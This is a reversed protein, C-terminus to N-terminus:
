HTDSGTHAHAAIKRWHTDLATFLQRNDLTATDPRALVVVDWGGLIDQHLRFSERILRKIRNRRVANGANRISVASGLRAHPLDNAVALVTLYRDSSRAQCHRFVRQYQAATLLRHSRPYPATAAAM